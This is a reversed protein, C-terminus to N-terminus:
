SRKGLAGFASKVLWKAVLYVMIPDAVTAASVARVAGVYNGIDLEEVALRRWLFARIRRRQALDGRFRAMHYIIRNRRAGVARRLPESTDPHGRYIRTLIKPIMAVNYLRTLRCLFELDESLMLGEDFGGVENIASARFMSTSGMGLILRLRLAEDFVYGEATPCGVDIMGVTPDVFASWVYVMGVEPGAADLAQVQKEIKTPFFEDDDDLFAIYEGHANSIGTNRAASVGRNRCHRFVRIRPDDLRAMVEPTEDTSCDDVILLEFDDFTQALVSDVARKLMAARNHTPIIVSVKPKRSSNM